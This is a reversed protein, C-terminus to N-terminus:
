AKKKKLSAALVVGASAALVLMAIAGWPLTDGSAPPQEGNDAEVVIAFPSLTDVSFSLRIGDAEVKANKVLEWKGNNLHLLGVFGQLSDPKLLLSFGGHGEHGDCNYDKNKCFVPLGM